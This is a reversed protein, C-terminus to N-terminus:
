GRQITIFGTMVKPVCMYICKLLASFRHCIQVLWKNKSVFQWVLFCAMSYRAMLYNGMRWLWGEMVILKSEKRVITTVKGALNDRTMPSDLSLSADGKTLVYDGNLVKVVRHVVSPFSSTVVIDGTRLETPPVAMVLDDKMILPAMCNGSVQFWISHLNNPHGSKTRIKM